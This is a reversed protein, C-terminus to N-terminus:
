LSGTEYEKHGPTITKLSHIIAEITEIQIGYLQWRSYGVADSWETHDEVLKAANLLDQRAAVLHVIAARADVHDANM